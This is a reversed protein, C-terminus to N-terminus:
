SNRGISTETKKIMGIMMLFEERYEISTETKKDNSDDNPIGGQVQIKKIM